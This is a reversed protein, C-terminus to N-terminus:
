ADPTGADDFGADTHFIKVGDGDGEGAAIYAGGGASGGVGFKM